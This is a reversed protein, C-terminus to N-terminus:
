VQAALRSYLEKTKETIAPASFGKEEVVAPSEKGFARMRAPDGALASIAEALAQPDKAPVLIGNRGPVVVERCGPVDTAIIPRGCAAAELLSKPIGEGGHSAQLAIHTKKWMDPMDACYGKWEVNASRSWQRLDEEKWSGPNNMDPVGCLWLKIRRNEAALIEFAAKLTDLGKIGIMRGSFMCIIEGSMDPLGAARYVDSEVGSGPIIVIRERRVLGLRAMLEADDPNQMLVVTNKRNLLVRFMPSVVGRLFKALVSDSNFVYGLGAVANVVRPVGAVWAAASGLIIAKLTVHHVIVPKERRYISILDFFSVLAGFPNLGPSIRCTLVRVGRAEIKERCSGPATVVGTNFGAEIAARAM